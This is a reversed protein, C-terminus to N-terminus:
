ASHEIKSRKSQFEALEAKVAKLEKHLSILQLQLNEVAELTEFGMRTMDVLHAHEAHEKRSPTLWPLHKERDIFTAVEDLALPRYEKEFVYDPKTYATAGTTTGQSGGYYVSGIARIDGNV